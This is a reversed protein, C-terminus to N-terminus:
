CPPDEDTARQRSSDLQRSSDRAVSTDGKRPNDRQEKRLLVIFAVALTALLQLFPSVFVMLVLWGIFSLKPDYLWHPVGSQSFDFAPNFLNRAQPLWIAAMMLFTVGVTLWAGRWISALPPEGAPTRRALIWGVPFGLLINLFPVGMGLATALLDFFIYITLFSWPLNPRRGPQDKAM